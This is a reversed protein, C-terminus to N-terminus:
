KLTRLYAVLASRQSADHLGPYRMVPAGTMARSYRFDFARGAKRGVVGKLSPGLGDTGDVSHCAQCQAFVVGGAAADQADAPVADALSTLEMLMMGPEAAQACAPGDLLGALAVLPVGASMAFMKM